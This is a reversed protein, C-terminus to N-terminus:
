GKKGIPCVSICVGCISMEKGFNIKSLERCKKRCKEADYRGNLLGKLKSFGYIYFEPQPFSDTVIHEFNM